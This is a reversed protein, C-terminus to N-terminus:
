CEQFGPSTTLRTVKIQSHLMHFPSILLFSRGLNQWMSFLEYAMMVRMDGYRSITVCSGTFLPLLNLFIPSCVRRPWYKQLKPISELTYTMQGEVTRKAGQAAAGTLVKHVGMSVLGDACTALLHILSM